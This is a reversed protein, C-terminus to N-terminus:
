ACPTPPQPAPPSPAAPFHHTTLVTCALLAACSGRGGGGGRDGGEFTNAAIIVLWPIGRSQAYEFQETLSPAAQPLLEASLGADWLTRALAMRERLLGGGGRSCVLVDAQSLRALGAV